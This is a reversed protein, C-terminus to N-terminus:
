KFSFYKKTKPSGFNIEWDDLESHNFSIWDNKNKQFINIINNKDNIELNIGESFKIKGIKEHKLIKIKDTKKEIQQNKQILVFSKEQFSKRSIIKSLDNVSFKYTKEDNTKGLINNEDENLSILTVQNVQHKNINNLYKEFTDINSFLKVDKKPTIM